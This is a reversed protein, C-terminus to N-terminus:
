EVETLEMEVTIPTLEIDSMILYVEVDVGDTSNGLPLMNTLTTDNVILTM